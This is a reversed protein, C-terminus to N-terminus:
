FLYLVFFIFSNEILVDDLKVWFFESENGKCYVNLFGNKFNKRGM